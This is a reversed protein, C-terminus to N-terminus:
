HGNTECSSNEMLRASLKSGVGPGVISQSLLEGFFPVQAVPIASFNRWLLHIIHKQLSKKKEQHHSHWRRKWSAVDIKGEDPGGFCHRRRQTRACGDGWRRPTRRERLPVTGECSNQLRVQISWLAFLNTV